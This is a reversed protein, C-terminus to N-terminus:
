FGLMADVEKNLQSIQADRPLLEAAMSIAPSASSPDNEDLRWVAIDYLVDALMSENKKISKCPEAFLARVAHKMDGLSNYLSVLSDFAGDADGIALYLAVKLAGLKKRDSDAYDTERSSSLIEIGAQHDGHKGYISASKLEDGAPTAGMSRLIDLTDMAAGGYGNNSLVEARSVYSAARRPPMALTRNEFPKIERKWPALEYRDCAWLERIFEEIDSEVSFLDVIAVENGRREIYLKGWIADFLSGNIGARKEYKVSVNREISYNQYVKKFREAAEETDWVAFWVLQMAGRRDYFGLYRDGDWGESVELAKALPLVAQLMSSMGFEGLTDSHAFRVKDHKKTLYDAASSLDIEVPQDREVFYKEPHIIQESSMPPDLFIEEFAEYGNKRRVEQMFAQGQIYPFAVFSGLTENFIDTMKEDDGYEEEYGTRDKGMGRIIDMIKKYSPISSQGYGKAHAEYETGVWSADGEIISDFALKIDSNGEAFDDMDSLDYYYDQLSHTMEHILTIEEERFDPKAEALKMAKNFDIQKEGLAMEKMIRAFPDDQVIFIDKTAPDYFGKVFIFFPRIEKLDYKIEKMTFKYYIESLAELKQKPNEAKFEEMLLDGSLLSGIRECPPTYALKLKRMRELTASLEKVRLVTECDRQNAEVSWSPLTFSSNGSRASAGCPFAAILAIFVLAASAAFIVPKAM